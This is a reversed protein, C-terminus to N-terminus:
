LRRLMVRRGRRFMVGCRLRRLGRFLCLGLMLASCFRFLGM